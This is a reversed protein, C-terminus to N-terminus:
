LMDAAFVKGIAGLMQRLDDAFIFRVGKDNQALHLNHEQPARTLIVVKEIVKLTGNNWFDAKGIQEMVSGDVYDKYDKVQIAIVYYEESSIISPMKVLIDTGHLPEYYGGVREVQYYPFLKQLGCVLAREWSEASFQETLKDYLNRSFKDENFLDTFVSEISTELRDEYSQEALLNSDSTLLREIAEGCHSINWFRSQCKLTSRIEGTVLANQRTFPKLMKAPFIHGYDYIPDTDDYAQSLDGDCENEEDYIEFRYGTEWDETAEVIAVEGWEPLNPVLLIDGKKVQLMPLNKSAGNDVTLNRLDQGEESGWGQRLWGKQLEDRFFESREKDIRYGWYNKM